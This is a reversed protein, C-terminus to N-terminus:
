GELSVAHAQQERVTVLVIVQDLPALPEGIQADPQAPPNPPDPKTGKIAQTRLNVLRTAPKREVAGAAGGLAPPPAFGRPSLEIDHDGAVRVAGGAGLM